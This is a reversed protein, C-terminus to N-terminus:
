KSRNSVGGRIDAKGTAWGLKPFEADAVSAAGNGMVVVVVPKADIDSRFLSLCSCSCGRRAADGYELSALLWV